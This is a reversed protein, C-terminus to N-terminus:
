EGVPAGSALCGVARAPRAIQGDGMVALAAERLQNGRTGAVVEGLRWRACAAFVKMHAADLGGVAAELAAAAEVSRGEVQAATGEILRGMAAYPAAGDSILVRAARRATRLLRAADRPVRAATGVATTGFLFTWFVRVSRDHLLMSSRVRPRTEVLRRYAPEPEGAYLDAFTRAYILFLHQLFFGSGPFQAEVEAIEARAGDLDDECVARMCPESLSRLYMIAYLDGRDRADAVHRPVRRLIERFEGLFFLSHISFMELTRLEWSMGTLERRVLEETEECHRFAERFDGREYGLVARILGTSGLLLPHALERAIGDARELLQNARVPNRASAMFGAEVALAFAVRHRDGSDLALHLHRTSFVAARAPDFLSLGLNATRCVEMRALDEGSARGPAREELGRM